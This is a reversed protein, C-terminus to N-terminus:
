MDEYTYTNTKIQANNINSLLPESIKIQTNSIYETVVCELDTNSLGGGIVQISAGVPLFPLACASTNLINSNANGSVTFPMTQVTRTRINKSTIIRGPYERMYDSNIFPMGFTQYGIAVGHM